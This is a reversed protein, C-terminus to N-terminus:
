IPSSGLAGRIRNAIFAGDRSSLVREPNTSDIKVSALRAPPVISAM